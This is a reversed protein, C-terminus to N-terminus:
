TLQVCGRVRRFTGSVHSCLLRVHRAPSVLGMPSSGSAGASGCRAEAASPLQVVSLAASTQEASAANSSAHTPRGRRVTLSQVLQRRKALLSRLMDTARDLAVSGLDTPGEGFPRRWNGSCCGGVLSIWVVGRTTMHPPAAVLPILAPPRPNLFLLM